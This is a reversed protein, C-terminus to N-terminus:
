PNLTDAMLIFSSTIKGYIHLILGKLSRVKSANQLDTKENLWNFLSEIPQRIKAVATNLLDSHAKDMKKLIEATGKVVKNPTFLCSNQKELHNKIPKSCYAKDLVFTKDSEQMIVDQIAPLDHESAPTIKIFKALPLKHPRQAALLHLKVGHYWLRKSACYTKDTMSPAVKASRKGSCTIIPMSDGLIVSENAESKSTSILYGAFLMFADGLRNLRDNFTQYSPLNPFWSHWYDLIFSHMRKKSTIQQEMTSFLYITMIEEDTIQGQNGNNSFRQVSYQLDSNYIKCVKYYLNILKIKKM